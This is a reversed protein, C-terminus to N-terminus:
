EFDSEPVILSLELLNGQYSIQVRFLKGARNSVDYGDAGQVSSMVIDVSPNGPLENLVLNGEAAKEPHLIIEQAAAELVPQSLSKKEVRQLFQLSVSILGMVGGVILTGLILSVLVEVLTFGQNSKTFPVPKFL